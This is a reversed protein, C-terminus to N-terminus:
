AIGEFKGSAELLRGQEPCVDPFCVAWYQLLTISFSFVTQASFWSIREGKAGPEQEGIGGALEGMLYNRIIFNPHNMPKRILTFEDDFDVYKM